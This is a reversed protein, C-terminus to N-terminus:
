IGDPDASESQHKASNPHSIGQKQVSVVGVLAVFLALQIGTRQCM